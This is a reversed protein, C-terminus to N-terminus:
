SLHAPPEADSDKGASGTGSFTRTNTKNPTSNKEERGKKWKRYKEGILIGVLFALICVLFSFTGSMDTGEQETPRKMPEAIALLGM